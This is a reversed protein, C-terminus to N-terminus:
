KQASDSLSEFANTVAEMAGALYKDRVKACLVVFTRNM